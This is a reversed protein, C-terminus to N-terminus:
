GDNLRRNSWHRYEWFALRYLASYFECGKLNVDSLAEKAVPHARLYDYLYVTAKRAVKLKPPHMIREDDLHAIFKNRYRLVDLLYRKYVSKNIGISKYLGEEFTKKDLIVSRWHHKGKNDAFLKCWELVAQDLFNGNLSNAFQTNRFRPSTGHWGARYFAINRLTHCSLLAVRRIRENKSLPMDSKM